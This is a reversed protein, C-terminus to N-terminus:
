WDSKITDRFRAREKARNYKVDGHVGYGCAFGNFRPKAQLTAEVRSLKWVPGEKQAGAKQRPM